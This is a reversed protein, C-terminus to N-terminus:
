EESEEWIFGCLITEIEKQSDGGAIMSAKYREYKQVNRDTLNARAAADLNRFRLADDIAAAILTTPYKM